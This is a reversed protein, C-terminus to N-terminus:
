LLQHATGVGLAPMEPIYRTRRRWGGETELGGSTPGTVRPTCDELDSNQSFAGWALGRGLVQAPVSEQLWCAREKRPPWAESPTLSGDRPSPSESALLLHVPPTCLPSSGRPWGEQKRTLLFEPGWRPPCAVRLTLELGTCREGGEQSQPRKSM